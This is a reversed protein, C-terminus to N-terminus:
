APFVINVDEILNQKDDVASFTLSYNGNTYTSNFETIRLVCPEELIKQRFINDIDAKRLKKGLISQFYPVGYTTNFDYEGQFTKLRIKLRQATVESSERTVPTQGNIFVCDHTVPDLLLDM